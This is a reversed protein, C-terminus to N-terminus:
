GSAQKPLFTSISVRVLRSHKTDLNISRANLLNKLGRPLIFVFLKYLLGNRNFVVSSIMTFPIDRSSLSRAIAYIEPHSSDTVLLVNSKNM